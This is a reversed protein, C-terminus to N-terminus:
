HTAGPPSIKKDLMGVCEAIGSAEIIKLGDLKACKSGRPVIVRSIGINSVERLRREMNYVTRLEGNLGVEGILATDQSFVLNSLSSYVSMIVAIDAATEYIRIGGAVNLYIDYPALSVGLKKEMVALLLTFRNFEYGSVMRRPASFYTNAALSQLEIILPRSGQMCVTLMSGLHEDSRKSLLYKSPDSLSILGRDTMEFIGTENTSGFRNKNARIIRFADSEQNEFYLVTDVMHEVTKPGALTGQKTVHGIMIVCTDTSKAFGMLKLTCARVQALSGADSNADDCFVTQISDIVLIDAKIREALEINAELKVDSSVYINKECKGTGFLRDARLKIQSPSEEASVYLIRLGASALFQACQLILTSKGIGPEGGILVLSGPVIGGGLVRDFEAIGSKIFTASSGDVESLSQASASPASKASVKQTLKETMSNWSGCEPCKGWNKASEYGCQECIYLLKEKAM